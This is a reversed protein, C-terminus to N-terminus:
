PRNPGRRVKSSGKRACSLPLRQGGLMAWGEARNGQNTLSWLNGDPGKMLLMTPSSNVRSLGLVPGNGERYSGVIESSTSSSCVEGNCVTNQVDRSRWEMEAARGNNLCDWKGFYWEQVSLGAVAPASTAVLLTAALCIARSQSM